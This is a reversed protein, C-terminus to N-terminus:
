PSRKPRSAKASEARFKLCLEAVQLFFVLRMSRVDLATDFLEGGQFM